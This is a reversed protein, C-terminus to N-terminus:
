RLFAQVRAGGQEGYCYLTEAMKRGFDVQYRLLQKSVQDVDSEKGEVLRWPLAFAQISVPAPDLGPAPVSVPVPAPAPVSRFRSRLHHYAFSCSISVPVPAPFPLPFPPPCRDVFM